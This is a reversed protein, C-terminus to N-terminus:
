LLWWESVSVSEDEIEPVSISSHPSRSSKLEEGSFREKIFKEKLFRDCNADMLWSTSKCEPFSGALFEGEPTGPVYNIICKGVLRM